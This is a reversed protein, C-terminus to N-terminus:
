TLDEPSSDKLKGFSSAIMNGALGIGGYDGGYIDSVSMDIKSTDGKTASFLAEIPGPFKNLLRLAGWFFSGGISTGCIRTYSTPSDVRHFSAGSRM